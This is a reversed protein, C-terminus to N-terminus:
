HLPRLGHPGFANKANRARTSSANRLNAVELHQTKGRPKAAIRGGSLFKGELLDFM